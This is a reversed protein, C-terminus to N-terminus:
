GKCGEGEPLLPGGSERRKKVRCERGFHGKKGCYECKVESRVFTDGKKRKKKKRQGWIVSVENGKHSVGDSSRESPSSYGDAWHVRKKQSEQGVRKVVVVESSGRQVKEPSVRRKRESRAEVSRRNGSCQRKKCGGKVKVVESVGPDKAGVREDCVAVSDTRNNEEEQIGSSRCDQRCVVTIRSNDSRSTVADKDKRAEMEKREKEKNKMLLLEKMCFLDKRSQSMDEQSDM